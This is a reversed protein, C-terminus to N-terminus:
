DTTNGLIFATEEPPPFPHNGSEIDKEAQEIIKEMNKAYLKQGADSIVQRECISDIFELVHEPKAQNKGIEKYFCATEFVTMDYSLSSSSAMDAEHLLLAMMSLAPDHTLLYLEPDLKFRSHAKENRYHQQYITKMQKMFSSKHGIPSTDTCLLITRIHDMLTGFKEQDRFGIAYFYKIATQYANRELRAQYYTGDITNGEGDHGLDHICASIMLTIIDNQDCVRVTNKNITNHTKILRITQILVKKYHQTNHYPLTNPIEGLIAAIVLAKKMDKNIEIDFHTVAFICLSLMSPNLGEKYWQRIFDITDRGSQQAQEPKAFLFNGRNQLYILDSSLNNKAAEYTNKMIQTTTWSNHPTLTLLIDKVAEIPDIWQKAIDNPTSM